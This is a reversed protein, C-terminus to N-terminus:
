NPNLNTFCGVIFQTNVQYHRDCHTGVMGQLVGISGERLTTVICNMSGKLVLYFAHGDHLSRFGEKLAHVGWMNMKCPHKGTMGFTCVNADVCM